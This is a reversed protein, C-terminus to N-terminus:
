GCSHPYKWGIGDSQGTDGDCPGHGCQQAVGPLAAAPVEERLGIQQCQQAAQLVASVLHAEYLWPEAPFGVM